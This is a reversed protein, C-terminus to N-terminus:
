VPVTRSASTLAEPPALTDKARNVAHAVNWMAARARRGVESKYTALSRAM